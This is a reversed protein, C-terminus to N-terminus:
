RPKLKKVIATHYIGHQMCGEAFDDDDARYVQCHGPQLSVVLCIPNDFDDFVLVRTAEASVPDRLHNHHEVRM